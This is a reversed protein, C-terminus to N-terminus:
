GIVNAAGKRKQLWSEYGLDAIRWIPLLILIVILGSTALVQPDQIGNRLLVFLYVSVLGILPVKGCLEVVWLRPFSVGVLAVLAALAIGASWWTQWEHGAARAVSTLGNNWAVAGFFLFFVDTLPLVFRFIGRFRWYEAPVGDRAWVSARAIRKLM